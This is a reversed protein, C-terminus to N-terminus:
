LESGQHHVINSDMKQHDILYTQLEIVHIQLLSQNGRIYEYHWKGNWLIAIKLDHSSKKILKESLISM